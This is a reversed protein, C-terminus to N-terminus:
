GMSDKEKANWIFSGSIMMSRSAVCVAGSRGGLNYVHTFTTGSNVLRDLNPTFLESNGM